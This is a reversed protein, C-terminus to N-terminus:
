IWSIRERLVCHESFADAWSKATVENKKSHTKWLSVSPSLSPSWLGKFCRLLIHFTRSLVDAVIFWPCEIFCKAKLPISCRCITNPPVRLSAAVTPDFNTKYFLTFGQRTGGWESIYLMFLYLLFLSKDASSLPGKHYSQNTLYIHLSTRTHNRELLRKTLEKEFRREDDLILRGDECQTKYFRFCSANGLMSCLNQVGAKTYDLVNHLKLFYITTINVEHHRIIPDWILNAVSAPTGWLIFGRRVNEKVVVM